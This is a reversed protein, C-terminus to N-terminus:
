MITVRAIGACEKRKWPLAHSQGHDVHSENFSSVIIMVITSTSMTYTLMLFHRRANPLQCLSNREFTLDTRLEKLFLKCSALVCTTLTVGAPLALITGAFFCVTFACVAKRSAKTLPRCLPHVAPAWCCPSFMGLLGLVGLPFLLLCVAGPASLLM